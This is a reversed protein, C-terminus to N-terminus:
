IEVGYIEFTQVTNVEFACSFKKGVLVVDKLEKYLMGKGNTNTVWRVVPGQVHSFVGLDYVVEQAAWSVTVLALVKRSRDYAAVTNHDSCGVMEMGALVHRSYQVFVFYKPNATGIWNQGPEANILGWNSSDFVQWYIWATAHMVNLDQSISDAMEMGSADSDGYETMWLKKNSAKAAQYLPGRAKGRYPTNGSYGHTNIKAVLSHTAPTFTDWTKL